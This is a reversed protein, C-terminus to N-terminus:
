EWYTYEIKVLGCAGPCGNCGPAGLSAYCGYFFNSV